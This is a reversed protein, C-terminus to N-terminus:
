REYPVAHLVLTPHITLRAPVHTPKRTQSSVDAADLVPTINSAYVDGDENEGGDGGGCHAYVLVVQM